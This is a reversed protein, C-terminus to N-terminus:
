MLLMAIAIAKKAECEHFNRKRVNVKGFGASVYSSLSSFGMRFDDWM